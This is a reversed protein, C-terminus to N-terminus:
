VDWDIQFQVQGIGYSRDLAILAYLHEFTM